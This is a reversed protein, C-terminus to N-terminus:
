AKVEMLIITSNSGSPNVTVSTSATASNFETKYTVASTTNPSDYSIITPGPIFLQKASNEYMLGIISKIVTADRKLRYVMNTDAANATKSVVSQNAIVIIKNSASSPTITATLTSDTYSASSSTVTTGTTGEVIQLIQFNAWRLGTPESSDAVISAIPITGPM